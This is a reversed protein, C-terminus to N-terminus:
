QESPGAARNLIAGSDVGIARCLRVLDSARMPERGSMMAQIDALELVELESAMDPLDKGIAAAVAALTSAIKKDMATVARDPSPPPLGDDQAFVDALPIRLRDLYRIMDRFSVHEGGRGTSVWRSVSARSSGLLRSLAAQSEGGKIREDIKQIILEWARNTVKYSDMTENM